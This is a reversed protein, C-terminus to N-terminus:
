QSKREIEIYIATWSAARAAKWVRYPKRSYGATTTTTTARLGRAVVRRVLLTSTRYSSRAIAPLDYRGPQQQASNRATSRARMPLPSRSEGGCHVLCPVLSISLVLRTPRAYAYLGAGHPQFNSQLSFTQCHSNSPSTTSRHRRNAPTMTM